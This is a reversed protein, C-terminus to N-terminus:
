KYFPFDNDDWCMKTSNPEIAIASHSASWSGRRLQEDGVFFNMGAPGKSISFEHSTRGSGMGLNKHTTDM